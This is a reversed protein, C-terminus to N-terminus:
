SSYSNSKIITFMEDLNKFLSQAQTTVKLKVKKPNDKASIHLTGYNFARALRGQKISIDTISDTNALKINGFFGRRKLTISENSIVYVPIYWAIFVIVIIFVQVATFAIVTFVTFSLTNALPSIEYTDTITQYLLNTLWVLFFPLIAFLFEIAIFRKIFQFPSSRIIFQQQDM